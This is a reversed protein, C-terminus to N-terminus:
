RPVDQRACRAFLRPLRASTTLTIVAPATPSSSNSDCTGEKAAPPLHVSSIPLPEHHSCSCCDFLLRACVKNAAPRTRPLWILDERIGTDCPLRFKVLDDQEMDLRIEEIANDELAPPHEMGAPLSEFDGEDQQPFPVCYPSIPKKDWYNVLLTVRLKKVPSPWVHHFIGHYLDGQFSIHKNVKPMIFWAEKGVEEVDFINGFAYGANFVATPSGISTLYTVTSRMPLIM